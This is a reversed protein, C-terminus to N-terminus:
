LEDLIRKIANLPSGIEAPPETIPRGIVLHTAGAKIAERPTMVRKQDGKSAWSPRVGPTVKLLGSLGAHKGLTMLEQPSCILGDVGAEKADIAMQLVKDAPSAGYIRQCEEPSIATLVTVALVQSLGKHAVAAKMSELGASAHINFYKVKFAAVAKSAAAITNPIDDFKGDFFLQGGLGHVFKVVQPAGCATILELGVKFCSVYPSLTEILPKAAELTSVDLAVIIQDRPDM